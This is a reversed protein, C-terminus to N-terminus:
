GNWRRGTSNSASPLGCVYRRAPLSSAAPWPPKVNLRPVGDAAAGQALSLTPAVPPGTVPVHRPLAPTTTAGTELHAPDVADPEATVVDRQVADDTSCMDANSANDGNRVVALISNGGTRDPTLSHEAAVAYAKVPVAARPMSATPLEAPQVQAQWVGGRPELGPRRGAVIARPSPAAPRSGSAARGIRASGSPDVAAAAGGQAGDVEFRQWLGAADAIEQWDDRTMFGASAASPRGALREAFPLVLAQILARVAQLM